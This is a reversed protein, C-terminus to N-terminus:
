HDEFDIKKILNLKKAMRPNFLTVRCNLKIGNLYLYRQSLGISDGGGQICVTVAYQCDKLLTTKYVTTFEYLMPNVVQEGVIEKNQEENHHRIMDMVTQLQELWKFAIIFTSLGM